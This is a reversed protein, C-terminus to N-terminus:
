FRVGALVRLTASRRTGIGPRRLRFRVCLQALQKAPSHLEGNQGSPAPCRHSRSDHLKTASTADDVAAAPIAERAADATHPVSKAHDGVRRPSLPRDRIPPSAGAAANSCLFLHICHCGALHLCVIFPKVQSLISKTPTLSVNPEHRQEPVVPSSCIIAASLWSFCFSYVLSM